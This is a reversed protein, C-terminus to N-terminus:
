SKTLILCDIALLIAFSLICSSFTMIVIEKVDAFSFYEISFVLLCYIGVFTVLYKCYNTLGISSVCPTINKTRDDRDVYAYFMPRKLAAILTCALANVGPTDSFIDILLGLCFALTFLMSPKVSLPLRILFYIFIVPIAVNFIAIHNCILVQLLILAVFLISYTLIDKNM